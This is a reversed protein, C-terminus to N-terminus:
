IKYSRVYFKRQCFGTHLYIQKYSCQASEKTGQTKNRPAMFRSFYAHEICLYNKFFYTSQRNRHFRIIAHKFLCPVM